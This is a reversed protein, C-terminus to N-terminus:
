RVWVSAYVFVTFFGYWTFLQVIFVRWFPRPANVLLKFIGQDSRFRQAFSESRSMAGIPTERVYYCCLVITIILILAALTFLAQSDSVFFPFISSLQLSGMGTGVLNGIGTM